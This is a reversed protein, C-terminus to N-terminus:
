KLYAGFNTSYSPSSSPFLTGAITSGFDLAAAPGSAALGSVTPYDWYQVVLDDVIGAATRQASSLGSTGFKSEVFTGTDLLFDFTSRGVGNRAPSQAITQGSVRLGLETLGEGIAGKTQTSLYSKALGPLVSGVVKGGVAGLGTDVVLSTASFSQGSLFQTTVNSAFGAAAGACAPGCTVAAAGGVAGGVAAGAYESFSSLEGNWLDTAGQFILGGVGGVIAGACQMCQGSPDNSVLPNNSVYAYLNVDGGSFGLPDESLFRGIAPDYYRARYYYLNSGPDRERGTYRLPNSTSAGGTLVEGFPAYSTAEDLTATHGTLAVVSTVQDHHFTYNTPSGSADFQYGNVVEDIVAGRLYKAQLAGSGDYTAELHEGELHFLHTGSADIRRVRFGLPDYGYGHIFGPGSASTVRGRDDYGLAVLITTTGNWKRLMNGNDDYDFRNILANDSLRRIENLRNGTGYIYDYSVSGITETERNGVADYTYTRDFANNTYNATLLRNLPDYGFLTTGSSTINAMADYGYTASQVV